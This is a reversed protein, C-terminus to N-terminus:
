NSNEFLTWDLVLVCLILYTNLVVPGVGEGGWVCVFFVFWVLFFGGSNIDEIPIVEQTERAWLLLHSLHSIRGTNLEMLPWAAPPPLWYGGVRKQSNKNDLTIGM